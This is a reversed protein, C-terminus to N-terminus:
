SDERVLEMVINEWRTLREPRYRVTSIDKLILEEPCDHVRCLALTHGPLANKAKQLDTM